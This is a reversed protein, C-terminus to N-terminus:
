FNWDRRTFFFLFIDKRRPRKRYSHLIVTVQFHRIIRRLERVVFVRYQSLFNPLLACFFWRLAVSSTASVACCSLWTSSSTVTEKFPRTLRRSYMISHDTRNLILCRIWWCLSLSFPRASKAMTRIIQEYVSFFIKGWSSERSRVLIELPSRNFRKNGNNRTWPPIVHLLVKSALWKEDILRSQFIRYEISRINSDINAFM